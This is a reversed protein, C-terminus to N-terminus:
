VRPTPDNEKPSRRMMIWAGLGCIAISALAVIGLAAFPFSAGDPAPAPTPGNESLYNFGVEKTVPHGDASVVRYNVTYHGPVTLPPLSVSITANLVQPTGTQIQTGTPDVVAVADGLSQINEDFTLSVEPPSTMVLSGDAPTMSVLVSHAQAPMSFGLIVALFTLLGAAGRIAVRPAATITIRSM